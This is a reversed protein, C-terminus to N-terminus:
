QRSSRGPEARITSSSRPLKKLPKISSRCPASSVNMLRVM